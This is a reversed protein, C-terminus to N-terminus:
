EWERERLSVELERQRERRRQEFYEIMLAELFQQDPQEPMVQM